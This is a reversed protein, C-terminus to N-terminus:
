IKYSVRRKCTRKAYKEVCLGEERVIVHVDYSVLFKKDLSMVVYRYFHVLNLWTLPSKVKLSQQHRNQCIRAINVGGCYSKTANIKHRQCSSWKCQHKWWKRAVHMLKKNIKEQPRLVNGEREWVFWLILRRLSFKLENPTLFSECIIM